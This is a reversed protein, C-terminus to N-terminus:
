LRKFKNGKKRNQEITLYQLNELIHFGSVIEGQLPIIHDVEYGKPCNEYFKKIAELDVWTPTRKLRAARQNARKAKNKEPNNKAWDRSKKNIKEKNSIHYQIHYKQLKEKNRLNWEKHQILEKVKNKLYRDKRIISRCNRCIYQRSNAAGITWNKGVILIEECKRCKKM